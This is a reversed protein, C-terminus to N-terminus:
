NDYMFGGLWSYRAKGCSIHRSVFVRLFYFCYNIILSNLDSHRLKKGAEWAQIIRLQAYIIHARKNVVFKDGKLIMKFVIEWSESIWLHM